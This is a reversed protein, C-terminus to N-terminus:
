GILSRSIPTAPAMLDVVPQWHGCALSRGAAHRTRPTRGGSLSPQGITRVSHRRACSLSVAALGGMAGAAIGEGAWCSAMARALLARRHASLGPAPLSLSHTSLSFVLPARPLGM